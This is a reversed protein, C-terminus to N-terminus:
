GGLGAAMPYTFLVLHALNLLWHVMVAWLLRGTWLYALGYLVGALTAVLVYAWGGPFHVLGFLLGSLGLAIIWGFRILLQRLVIGRFLLEEALCTNLLNTLAFVWFWVSWGPRWQVLGLAMASLMVLGLGLVLLLPTLVAVFRRRPTISQRFLPLWALLSWAVWIKDHNFYLDTAISDPKLTVQEALLLGDYGPAQHIVLPVSAAFWLGYRLYRVWRRVPWEAMWATLVLYGLLYGAFVPTVYEVLVAVLLVLLAGLYRPWRHLSLGSAVLLLAYLSAFPLM